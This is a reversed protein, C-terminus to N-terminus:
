GAPQNRTCAHHEEELKTAVETVTAPQFDPWKALTSFVEEMHAYLQDEDAQTRTYPGKGAVLSSSHITFCICPLHMRRLQQLFPLMRKGMPDEFNLWVKRVVGLKEAIGILHLRSWWSNRIFDYCKRWWAFPRRTFALTLPIEWLPADGEYRPPLRAPQLGRWRYDPAGEDDWTSFPVVSADAKFGRDRLFEHIPGGSSYRGGRFSTPRLGNKLFSEYVSNLKAQILEAALNHLFTKRPTVASNKDLPPTNWPHIHMGIEVRPERAIELLIARSEPNDLVAQDTFYTTAVGYRRCLEQFRPLRSINTVSLNTTPWGSGWDWEEETDVTMTFLTPM